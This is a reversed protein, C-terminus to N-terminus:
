NGIDESLSGMLNEATDPSYVIKEKLFIILDGLSVFVQKLTDELEVLEDKGYRDQFEDKHWYFLFLIRGVKDMGRVLETVYDKRLESVDAANILSKIVAVDFVEQIGTGSAKIAASVINPPSIPKGGHRKQSELVMPVKRAAVSERVYADAVKLLFDAKHGPQSAAHKLLQNIQSGEIGVNYVLHKVAELKPIMGTTQEGVKVLAIDGDSYITASTLGAVKTMAPYLTGMTGFALSKDESYPLRKFVKANSPVHMTDGIIILKGPKDTFNLYLSRPEEMIETKILYRPFGNSVYVSIKGDPTSSVNTVRVEYANASGQTILYCEPGQEKFLKATPKSGGEIAKTIKPDLQDAPRGLLDSSKRMAYYGPNKLDILACPRGIEKMKDKISYEPSRELDTAFLVLMTKFEGDRLLIDYLGSTTPSAITKTDISTHFVKSFNYRKDDVFFGSQVLMKKDEPKLAKVKPDTISTIINVSDTQKEKNYVEKVAAEKLVASTRELDSPKYFTFFANAFEPSSTLMNSFTAVAEEGLKEMMDFLNIKFSGRSALMSDLEEKSIISNASSLESAFKNTGYNRVDTIAVNEPASAMDLKPNNRDVLHGLVGTGQEKFMSVWNDRAPVFIDNQKVYLHVMKIAGNLFFVPMYLWADNVIFAYIGVAQKEDESKDIVQFGIRYTVLSPMAEALKSDVLQGFKAEFSQEPM